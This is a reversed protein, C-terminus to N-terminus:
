VEYRIPDEFGINKFAELREQCAGCKGCARIQDKYCTRTFMYPFGITLGYGYELIQTKNKNLFPAHLTVKEDTGHRIACSMANFFEPRCDPYITHDGSHIGLVVSDFGRSEAIGALISIFIINRGPVITQKMSESEYHGEPITGGSQLLNSQLHKGVEQLNIKIYEVNFFDSLQQACKQEYSNHKSGYIFGVALVKESQEKAWALATASDMGGSLSVVARM